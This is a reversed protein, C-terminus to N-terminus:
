PPFFSLTFGSSMMKFSCLHCWLLSQTWWLLVQLGLWLPMRQLYILACWVDHASVSSAWQAQVHCPLLRGSIFIFHSLFTGSSSKVPAPCGGVLLASLPHQQASFTKQSAIPCDTQKTYAWGWVIVSICHIHESHMILSISYFFRLWLGGEWDTETTPCHLRLFGIRYISERHPSYFHMDNSHM